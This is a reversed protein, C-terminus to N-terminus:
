VPADPREFNKFRTRSRVELINEYVSLPIVSAAGPRITTDAALVAAAEAETPWLRPKLRDRPFVLYTSAPREPELPIKLSQWLILWPMDGRGAGAMKLTDGAQTSGHGMTRMEAVLAEAIKTAQTLGECIVAVRHELDRRLSGGPRDASAVQRPLYGRARLRTVSSAGIATDADDPCNYEGSTWARTTAM